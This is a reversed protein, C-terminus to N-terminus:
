FAKQLLLGRLHLRAPFWARLWGDGHCGAARSFTLPRSQVHGAVHEGGFPQLRQEAEPTGRGVMSALSTAAAATRTSPLATLPPPPPSPGGAVARGEGGHVRDGGQGWSSAERQRGSAPKPRAGAKPGFRGGRHTCSRPASVRSSGGPGASALSAGSAEALVPRARPLASLEAATQDGRGEGWPPCPAPRRCAVGQGRAGSGPEQTRPARHAGAGLKLRWLRLEQM